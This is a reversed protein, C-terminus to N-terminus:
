TQSLSITYIEFIKHSGLALRVVKKPPAINLRLLKNCIIKNQRIKPSRHSSYNFYHNSYKEM